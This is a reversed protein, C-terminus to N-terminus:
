AAVEEFVASAYASMAPDASFADAPISEKLEAIVERMAARLRSRTLCGPAEVPSIRRLELCLELLLFAREADTKAERKIAGALALVGIPGRLRWHLAAESAVPKELRQRLGNLAAAVRRTRQLLFASTDVRKHPDLWPDSAEVSDREHRKRWARLAEHFTRSTTLMEILADLSLSRLDAPLPLVEASLVNV